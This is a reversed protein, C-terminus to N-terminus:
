NFSFFIISQNFFNNNIDIFTSILLHNYNVIPNNENFNNLINIYLIM